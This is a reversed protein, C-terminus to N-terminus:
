YRLAMVIHVVALAMLVFSLPVHVLLWGHLVRHMRFQRMLQREEECLSELDAIASELSPPALRRLTAFRAAAEGPDALMHSGSPKLLFPRMETVYFERFAGTDEAAPEVPRMVTALGAKAVAGGSVAGVETIVELRGSADAVITDAEDVLQERVRGIQEYITEMPVERLMRQPVVHQLWAGVIGSAWVVGFLWMLWATLGHGFLSGAHLVILPLSLAGLWLHGRMWTQTRGIRWIPFKKRLSLLTVFTMFAFGISGYTLGIASGGSPPVAGNAYPVYGGVAVALIVLSAIAWRRHSRDILM